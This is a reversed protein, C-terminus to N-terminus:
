KSRIRGGHAEHDAQEIQIHATTTLVLQPESFSYADLPIIAEEPPLGGAPPGFVCAAVAPATPLVVGGEPTPTPTPLPSFPQTATPVPTPTATPTVTPTSTPKPRPTPDVGNECTPDLLMWRFSYNNIGSKKTVVRITNPSESVFDRVTITFEDSVGSHYTASANNFRIGQTLIDGVPGIWATTYDGLKGTYRSGDTPAVRTWRGTEIAITEVTEACNNTIHYTLTTTGDDHRSYGLFTATVCEHAQSLCSIPTAEGTTAPSAPERGALVVYAAVALLLLTVGLLANTRNRM